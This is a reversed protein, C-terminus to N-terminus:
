QKGGKLINLLDVARSKDDYGKINIWRHSLFSNVRKQVVNVTVPICGYYYTATIIRYQSM